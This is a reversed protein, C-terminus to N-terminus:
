DQASISLIPTSKKRFDLIILPPTPLVSSSPRPRCIAFHLDIEKGFWPFPTPSPSLPSNQLLSPSTEVQACECAREPSMSGELVLAEVEVRRSFNLGSTVEELEEVLCKHLSLRKADDESGEQHKMRTLEVARDALAKKCSPLGLDRLRKFLEDKRERMPVKVRMDRDSEQVFKNQSKLVVSAPVAAVGNEFMYLEDILGEYTRPTLMPSIMDTARDVIILEDIMPPRSADEDEEDGIEGRLMDLFETVQKAHEGKGRILPITGYILQLRMLSKATYFLGTTDGMVEVDRYLNPMEMSLFDDELPVLGFDLEGIRCSDEWVGEEELVRQMMVSMRPVCCIFYDNGVGQVGPCEEAVTQAQLRIQEAILKANQITNRVIYVIGRPNNVGGQIAGTKLLVSKVM